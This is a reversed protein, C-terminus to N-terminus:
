RNKRVAFPLGVGQMCLPNKLSKRRLPFFAQIIHGPNKLRFGGNEFLSHCFLKMVADAPCVWLLFLSSGKIWNLFIWGSRRFVLVCKLDKSRKQVIPEVDSLIKAKESARYTQRCPAPLLVGATLDIVIIFPVPGSIEKM